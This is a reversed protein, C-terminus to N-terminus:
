VTKSHEIKRIIYAVQEEFTLDTTDLRYADAPELLPAEARTSDLTDRQAIERAMEDFSITETHLDQLRRKAREELSAVMFFKLEAHPFVVTGMDRGECVTDAAHALEQQLQTMAARVEAIASYASVNKSTERSRIETSVNRDNLYLVTKGDENAFSLTISSLLKTLKSHEEPSIGAEIAAVTIGRYMAGTDLHNFGTRRAVERATSSKGSGAPGDITVILCFVGIWSNVYFLFHIKFFTIIIYDKVCKLKYTMSLITYRM